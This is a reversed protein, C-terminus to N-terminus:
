LCVVYCDQLQQFIRSLFLVEAGQEDMYGDVFDSAIHEEVEVGDESYLGLVRELVMLDVLVSGDSEQMELTSLIEGKIM